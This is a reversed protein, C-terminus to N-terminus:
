AVLLSHEIDEEPRYGLGQQAETMILILAQTAFQPKNGNQMGPILLHIRVIM